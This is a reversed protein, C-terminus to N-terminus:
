CLIMIIDRKRHLAAYGLVVPQSRKPASCVKACVLFFGQTITYHSTRMTVDNSYFFNQCWREVDNSHHRGNIANHMNWIVVIVNVLYHPSHMGLRIANGTRIKRGEVDVIIQMWPLLTIFCIGNWSRKRSSENDLWSM